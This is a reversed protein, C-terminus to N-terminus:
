IMNHLLLDLDRLNVTIGLFIVDSILKRCLSNSVCKEKRNWTQLNIEAPLACDMLQSLLLCFM